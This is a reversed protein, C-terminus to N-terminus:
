GVPPTTMRRGDGNSIHQHQAMLKALRVILDLTKPLDYFDNRHMGPAPAPGTLEAKFAEVEEIIANYEAIPSRQPSV